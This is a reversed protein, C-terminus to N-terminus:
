TRTALVPRHQKQTHPPEFPHHLRDEARSRDIGQSTGRHLSEWGWRRDAFVLVGPGVRHSRTRQRHHIRETKSSTCCTASIRCNLGIRAGSFDSLKRGKSLAIRRATEQIVAAGSEGSILASRVARPIEFRNLFRGGISLSLVLDITINTKLSKKGGFIGGPQGRVLLGDILYEITFESRDLEGFTVAKVEFPVEKPRDGSEEAGQERNEAIYDSFSPREDDGGGYTANWKADDEPTPFRSKRQPAGNHAGVDSDYISM